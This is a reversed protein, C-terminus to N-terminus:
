GTDSLYQRAVPQGLFNLVRLSLFPGQYNLEADVRGGRVQMYTMGDRQSFQTLKLVQPM